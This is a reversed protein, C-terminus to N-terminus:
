KQEGYYIFRPNYERGLILAERKKVNSLLYKDICDINELLEQFILERKYDFILLMSHFSTARLLVIIALYDPQEDFFKVPLAKADRIYDYGKLSKVLIVDGSNDLVSVENEIFLVNIDKSNWNITKDESKNKQKFIFDKIGFINDDYTKKMINGEDIIIRATNYRIYRIQMRFAAFSSIVLVIITFFCFVVIFIEKKIYDIKFILRLLYGIILGICIGIASCIIAYPLIFIFILCSTSSPHGFINEVIFSTAFFSLCGIFHLVASSIACIRVTKFEPPKM